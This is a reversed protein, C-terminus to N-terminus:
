WLRKYLWGHSRVWGRVRCLRDQAPLRPQGGEKCSPSPLASIPLNGKWSRSRSELYYKNLLAGPVCPIVCLGLGVAVGKLALCTEQQQTKGVSLCPLLIHSYHTGKTVLPGSWLVLFLNVPYPYQCSPCTLLEWPALSCDCPCSRAGSSAEGPFPSGLTQTFPSGRM